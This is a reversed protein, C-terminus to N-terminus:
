SNGLFEKSFTLEGTLQQIFQIGLGTWMRLSNKGPGNKFCALYSTAGVAREHHLNAAIEAFEENVESSDVPRALIRSLARQAQDDHGKM